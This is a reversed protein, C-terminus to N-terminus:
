TKDKNAKADTLTTKSVSSVSKDDDLLNCSAVSVMEIEDLDQWSM